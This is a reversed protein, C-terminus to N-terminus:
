SNALLPATQERYRFTENFHGQPYAGASIPPLGDGNILSRCTPVIDIIADVNPDLFFPISFREPGGAVSVRHLRARYLGATWRTLLDGLNVVFAGSVPEVPIWEGNGAEVELGGVDDQALITMFGYDSHAGCGTVEAGHETEPYHLLRLNAVPARMAADFFTADLGLGMATLRVLRQGLQMLAAHYTAIADKFGPTDPWVNGSSFPKGALVDPHDPALDVGLDFSEKFDSTSDNGLNEEFLPVYGRQHPHSHRIHYTNKTELSNAFFVRMADFAADITQEAVDHGRLYFFGYERCAKAVAEAHVTDSGQGLDVLPISYPRKTNEQM